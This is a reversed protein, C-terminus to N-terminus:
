EAEGPDIALQRMWDTVSQRGIGILEGAEVKRGRTQRLARVLYHRRVDDVLEKVQLGDGLPRDLIGDGTAKPVSLLEVDDAEITTGTSWITARVLTNQLERVNGPWDHETLRKRAGNSLRRRQYGPRAAAKENVQELLTDIMVHLDPKRERLAPIRLVAVALRYYLDERFEGDAVMRALDRHTAAVVRVDVRRTTPAGVPQVEGRELVRLLKSQASLPLEGIEDLFLTSGNAAEFAGVHDRDASTFAGRVHGFLTSEVLDKPIAGCNRLHLAKAARPSADHIGRAFLEKGTGSEGLILVPVERDAVRGARSILAEMAKSRYVIDGFAGSARGAGLDALARDSARLADPLFDTFVDFPVIAEVVGAEVSANTLRARHPGRGVLIWVATMAPTGSSLNFTPCIEETFTEELVRRVGAYIQGFHMPQDLPVDHQAIPLGARDRLWTIYDALSAPDFLDHGPKPDLLLVAGHLDLRADLLTAALAGVQGARALKIDAAGIWSYLLNSM